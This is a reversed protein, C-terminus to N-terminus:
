WRVGARLELRFGQPGSTASVGGRLRAFDRDVFIGRLGTPVDYALGAATWPRATQRQVIGFQRELNAYRARWLRDREECTLLLDSCAQVVSDARAVYEVVQVTDHKWAAVTVTMTDLRTRRVLFTDRQIRFVTDVRAQRRRLADNDSRLQALKAEARGRAREERAYLGLGAVAIAALVIWGVLTKM